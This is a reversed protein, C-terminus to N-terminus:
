WWTRPGLTGRCTIPGHRRRLHLFHHGMFSPRKRPNKGPRSGCLDLHSAPPEGRHLCHVRSNNEWACNTILCTPQGLRLRISRSFLSISSGLHFTSFYNWSQTWRHSYFLFQSSIVSPINNPRVGHNVIWQVNSNRLLHESGNWSVICRFSM